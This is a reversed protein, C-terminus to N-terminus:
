SSICARTVLPTSTDCEASWSFFRGIPQAMPLSLSFRTRLWANFFLLSVVAFGVPCSCHIISCGEPWSSLSWAWDIVGDAMIRRDSCSHLVVALFGLPWQTALLAWHRFWDQKSAQGRTSNTSRLITNRDSQRKFHGELIGSKDALHEKAYLHIFYSLPNFVNWAVSRNIIALRADELLPISLKM